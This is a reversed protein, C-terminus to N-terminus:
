MIMLDGRKSIRYESILVGILLFLFSETLYTGSLFLKVYCSSILVLIFSDEATNYRSKKILLLVTFFVPVIFLATGVIVGFSVWLEILINHAYAGVIARDGAIGYGFWNNSVAQMLQEQLINRGSSELIDGSILMDIIRTSMGMKQILMLFLRIIEDYFFIICLISIM